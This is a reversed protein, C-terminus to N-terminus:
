EAELAERFERPDFYASGETATREVHLDLRAAALIADDSLTQGGPDALAMEALSPSQALLRFLATVRMYLNLTTKVDTGLEEVFLDLVARTDIEPLAEEEDDDTDFGRDEDDAFLEHEATLEALYESFLFVGTALLDPEVPGVRHPEGGHPHSHPSFHTM